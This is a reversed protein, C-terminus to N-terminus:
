SQYHEGSFRSSTFIIYTHLTLYRFSPFPQKSSLSGWCPWVPSEVRQLTLSPSLSPSLAAAKRPCRSLVGAKAPQPIPIAHIAYPTMYMPHRRQSPPDGLLLRCYQYTADTHCHCPPSPSPTLFDPFKASTM